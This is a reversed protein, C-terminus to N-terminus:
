SGIAFEIDYLAIDNAVNVVLIDDRCVRKAQILKETFYNM